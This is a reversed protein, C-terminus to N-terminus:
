LKETPVVAMQRTDTNDFGRIHLNPLEQGLEGEVGGQNAQFVLSGSKEVMVQFSEKLEPRRLIGKALYSGRYIFQRAFSMKFM